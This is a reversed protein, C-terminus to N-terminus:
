FAYAILSIGIMMLYFGVLFALTFASVIPNFLLMIGVIIGIINVILIFWYYSSGNVKYIDAGVLGMISDVIFWIAFIYPLALLGANTNFLLFVGLIMLLTSKQNTFEHLKRRFFLEFIGKLVAAIAFVYVVAKLSSDPNNFSVLSAIVFLLGILFYEWSFGIKRVM